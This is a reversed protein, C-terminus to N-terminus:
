FRACHPCTLSAYELVHVPADPDGETFIGTAIPLEAEQAFAPLAPAAAAAALGALAARRDLILSM